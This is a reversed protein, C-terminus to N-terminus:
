RGGGARLIAALKKAAEDSTLQALVEPPASPDTRDISLLYLGIGLSPSGGEINSAEERTIPGICLSRKDSIVAEAFFEEM